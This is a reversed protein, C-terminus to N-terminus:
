TKMIYCLAYYPPMNNHAKNGGTNNITHRHNGSSQSTVDSYKYHPCGSKRYSSGREGCGSNTGRSYTHSHNGTENMSHNHSPIENVTLKITKEANYAPLVVVIMKGNIM